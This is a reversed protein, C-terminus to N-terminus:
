DHLVSMGLFITGFHPVKSSDHWWKIPFKKIQLMAAFSSAESQDEYYEIHLKESTFTVGPLSSYIASLKIRLTYRTYRAFGPPALVITHETEGSKLTVTKNPYGSPMSHQLTYSDVTEKPESWHLVVKRDNIVKPTPAAPPNHCLSSTRVGHVYAIVGPGNGVDSNRSTVVFAVRDSYSDSEADKIFQISKGRVESAKIYTDKFDDELEGKTTPRGKRLNKVFTSSESTVNFAFCIVTDFDTNAKLSILSSNSKPTDFKIRSVKEFNKLCRTLQEEESEKKRLYAELSSGYLPEELESIVAELESLEAEERRIKPIIPKLKEFFRTKFTSFLDRVESVEAQIDHFKSCVGSALLDNIRLEREHLRDVASEVRSILNSSLSRVIRDLPRGKQLKELESLPTLVIIKSIPANKDLQQPLDRYLKVAENFTSPNSELHMDGHFKCAFKDTGAKEAAEANFSASGSIPISKIVVEMNGSVETMSEDDSVLRDFIFYADAGYTIETVVHTADKNEFVDPHQINKIQDMTLTEFYSTSSYQLTIRSQKLSTKKDSLYTAAGELEVLGGMFSLKVEAELDLLSSKAEITDKAIVNFKSTKKDKKVSHQTLIENDWLTIGSIPTEHRCDYLMGLTFNRGLSHITLQRSM